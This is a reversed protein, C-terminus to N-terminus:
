FVKREEQISEDQVLDFKDVVQSQLDGCIAIVFTHNMMKVVHGILEMWM